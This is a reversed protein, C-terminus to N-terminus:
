VGNFHSNKPAQERSHSGLHATNPPIAYQIKTSSDNDIPLRYVQLVAVLLVLCAVGWELVEAMDELVAGSEVLVPPNSVELSKYLPFM